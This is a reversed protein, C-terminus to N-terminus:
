RGGAAEHGSRWAHRLNAALDRFQDVAFLLLEDIDGAQQALLFAIQAARDIDHISPELRMYSTRYTQDQESPSNTPPTSHVSDAQTM